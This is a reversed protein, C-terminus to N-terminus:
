GNEKVTDCFARFWLSASVAGPDPLGLTKDKFNKSRGIGSKMNKSEEAGDEAAQCAKEFLFIVDESQSAAQKMAICAPYLADLMTKQGPRAKGRREIAQEGEMFYESLQGATVYEKHGLKSLGGFFMTGFIIGSAGGMTKILETSVGYCLEDVYDFQQKGLLRGVAECGRKMGIGHDGDGIVSDIETLYPEKETILAAGRVFMKQFLEVYLREM